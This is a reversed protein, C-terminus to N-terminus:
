RTFLETSVYRDGRDPFITVINGKKIKRAIKIAGWLAAGSSIGVSVGEKRFLDRALVFAKDDNTIRLVVDIKSYNFIPPKYETMNRLSQIRSNENPEVGIIQIKPNFEKLKRGVGMLTGGTGMGAVFHTIDPLQKIIEFGTTEYHARVNAFNKYQNLMIYKRPYDDVMKTAIKLALNSGGKKDTLIISAGYQRILKQRESSVGESMVAVFKYGKISSLLALGIGTNGSTAEIITINNNLLGKQEADDILYKAVRDKISGGPNSGELKAFIRVSKNPSYRTLEVLPTNGITKILNM